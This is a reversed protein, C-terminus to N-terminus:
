FVTWFVEALTLSPNPLRRCLYAIPHYTGPYNLPWIKLRSRGGQSRATLSWSQNQSSSPFTHIKFNKTLLSECFTLSTLSSPLVFMQFFIENVPM